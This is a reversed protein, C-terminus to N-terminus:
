RVAVRVSRKEVADILEQRGVGAVGSRTTSRHESRRNLKISGVHARWPVEGVGMPAWGTLHWASTDHQRTM